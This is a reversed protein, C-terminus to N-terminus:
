AVLAFPLVAKSISDALNFQYHSQLLACLCRLAVRRTAPAEGRNQVSRTLAKM